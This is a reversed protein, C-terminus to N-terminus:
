RGNASTLREIGVELLRAGTGGGLIRRAGDLVTGTGLWELERQHPRYRWARGEVDIMGLEQQERNRVSFFARGPDGPVELRVITGLFRNEEWVEWARVPRAHTVAIMGPNPPASSTTTRCAVVSALAIALFAPVGANLVTSRTRLTM